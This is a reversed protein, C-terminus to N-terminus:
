PYQLLNSRVLHNLVVSIQEEVIKIALLKFNPNPCPWARQHNYPLIRAERGVEQHNRDIRLTGQNTFEITWDGTKATM